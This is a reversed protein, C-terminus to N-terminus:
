YHMTLIAPHQQITEPHSPSAYDHQTLSPLDLVFSNNMFAIAIKIIKDEIWFAYGSHKLKRSNKSTTDKTGIIKFCYWPPFCPNSIQM